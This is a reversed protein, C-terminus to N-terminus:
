QWVIEEAALRNARVYFLADGARIMEDNDPDSIIQSGKKLAVITARHKQRFDVLLDFFPVSKRIHGPVDIRYLSAGTLNSMLHQLVHTSQPDEAEQVLLLHYASWVVQNLDPSQAPLHHVKGEHEENNLHVVLPAVTNVQRVAFATLFTQNDDEGQVIIRAAQSVCARRLVDNGSLEGRVFMIEGNIFPSEELSNSCLM